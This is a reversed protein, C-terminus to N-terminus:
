GCLEPTILGPAWFGERLLTAYIHLREQWMHRQIEVAARVSVTGEPDKPNNIIRIIRGSSIHLNKSWWVALSRPFERQERGTM